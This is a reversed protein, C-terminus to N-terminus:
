SIINEKILNNRYNYQRTVTIVGELDPDFSDYGTSFYLGNERLINDLQSIRAEIDSEEEDDYFYQVQFRERTMNLNDSSHTTASSTIHNIRIFPLTKLRDVDEPIKYLYIHRPDIIDDINNRVIRKLKMAIQVSIM